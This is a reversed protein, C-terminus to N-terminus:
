SDATSTTLSDSVAKSDATSARLGASVAKSDAVLADLDATVAAAGAATALGAASAAASRAASDTGGSAVIQDLLDKTVGVAFKWGAAIAVPVDGRTITCVDTAGSVVATVTVIEARAFIPFAGTFVTAQFPVAPIPTGADRQIVLSLGSLAPSPPTVVTGYVLNDYHLTM